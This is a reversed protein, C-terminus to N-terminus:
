VTKPDLHDAHDHTIFYYDVGKLDIPKYLPQYSRVLGYYEEAYNSLYPDIVITENKGQVIMGSQGIFQLVVSNPIVAKQKLSKIINQESM